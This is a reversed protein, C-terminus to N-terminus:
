YSTRQHPVIPGTPRMSGDENEGPEFLLDAGSIVVRGDEFSIVGNIQRVSATEADLADVDAAVVDLVDAHNNVIGELSDIQQQMVGLNQLVVNMETELAVLDADVAAAHDATQKLEGKLDSLDARQAAGRPAQAEGEVVVDSVLESEERLAALEARLMGIEARLAAVDTPEASSSSPTTEGWGCAVSLGLGLVAIGATRMGRGSM